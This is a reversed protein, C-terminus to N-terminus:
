TCCVITVFVTFRCTCTTSNLLAPPHLSSGAEQQDLLVPACLLPVLPLLVLTLLKSQDACM